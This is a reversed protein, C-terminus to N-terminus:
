AAVSRRQAYLQSAYVAILAAEARGDHKALKWQEAHSPLLESARKRALKKDKPAKMAAKWKSPTVQEISPTPMGAPVGSILAMTMVGYANGANWGTKLADSISQRPRTGPSEMLAMGIAHRYQSAEVIKRMILALGSINLDQATSGKKKLTTPMDEIVLLNTDPAYVAIAGNVGPDIGIFALKITM